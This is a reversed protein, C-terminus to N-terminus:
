GALAEVAEGRSSWLVPRVGYEDLAETVNAAIRAGDEDNLFAFAEGDLGRTERTDTISFLFPVIHDRQPVSIAQVLREPRSKSRPILFDVTHDYGSTGAVKVRPVYRVDHDDLFARVDEYFFGAVRHQSMVYMDNVALMAQVLSHIRAGVNQPSAEVVLEGERLHVGFGHLTTTLIDQRKDTDIEVGSARLDSIVYGDDTLLIRGDKQDAYIQLHDNHRDLFPLTLECGGEVRAARMGARLWGVYSEVLAECGGNSM